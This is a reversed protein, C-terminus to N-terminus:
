GSGVQYTRGDTVKAVLTHTDSPAQTSTYLNLVGQETPVALTTQPEFYFHKQGGSCEVGLGFFPSPIPHQHTLIPDILPTREGERLGYVRV